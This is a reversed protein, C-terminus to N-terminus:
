KKHTGEVGRMTRDNTRKNLWMLSEELKTLALANERCAFESAQFHTLRDVVMLLLDEDTVGNVGHELIAGEQFHVNLIPEDTNAKVVQYQHPANFQFQQEVMVETRSTIKALSTVLYEM